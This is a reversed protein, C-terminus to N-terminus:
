NNENGIKIRKVEGNFIKSICNLLNKDRNDSIFEAIKKFLNYYYSDSRNNLSPLEILM